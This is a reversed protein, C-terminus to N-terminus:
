KRSVAPSPSIARATLWDRIERGSGAMPSAEANAKPNNEYGMTVNAGRIAIEGIAGPPQPV